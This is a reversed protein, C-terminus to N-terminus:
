AAIAIVSAQRGYDPEVRHTSRRYSFYDEENFCTDIGRGDVLGVGALKLRRRVYSPLDFMLHGARAAPIFFTANEPDQEVFKLRFDAKVEYSDPGICPGIAARIQGRPVGMDAMMAVTSELVGGVAGGWGAHAAGVVPSGDARRGSFLVPTCDATLVAIALGPVDTVLADAKPREDPGWPKTVRVCDASHVQHLTVFSEARAGISEAVRGRNERVAAADDGSGVGCNLSNYIGRSIGGARGFFGHRVNDTKLIDETIFMESM